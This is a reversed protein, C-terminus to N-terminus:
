SFSRTNTSTSCVQLTTFLYIQDEVISSLLPIAVTM